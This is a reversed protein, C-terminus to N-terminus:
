TEPLFWQAADSTAEDYPAEGIMYEHSVAEGMLVCFSTFQENVSVTAAHRLGNLIDPLQHFPIEMFVEIGGEDDHEEIIREAEREAAQMDPQNIISEWDTM